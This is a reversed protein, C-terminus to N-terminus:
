HLLIGPVLCNSLQAVNWKLVVMDLNLAYNM